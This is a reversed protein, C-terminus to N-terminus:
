WLKERILRNDLEKLVNKNINVELNPRKELQVKEKTLLLITEGQNDAEMQELVEEVSQASYIEIEIFNGLCYDFINKKLEAMEKAHSYLAINYCPKYSVEQIGAQKLSAYQAQDQLIIIKEKQLSNIELERLVQIKTHINQEKLVENIIKVLVFNTGLMTENVCIKINCSSAIAKLALIYTVYPNGNHSIIIEQKTNEDKVNETKFKETLEEFQQIKLKMQYHKNDIENAQQIYKQEEKIAQIIKNLVKEM